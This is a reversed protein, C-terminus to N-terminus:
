AFSIPRVFAGPCRHEPVNRKLPDSRIRGGHRDLWKFGDKDDVEAALNGLQDRPADAFGADIRFDDREVGCVFGELPKLGLAYDQGASRARHHPILARARRLMKEVAPQRDEADAVALLRHGMLEAAPDRRGVIALEPAREDLDDVVTCQEVAKPGLALGVLHPHAM